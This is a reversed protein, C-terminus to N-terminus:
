FVNMEIIKRLELLIRKRHNSITRHTTGILKAYQRLSMDEFYLADILNRDLEDLEDLAKYLEDILQKLFLQDIINKQKYVLVEYLTFEEGFGNSRYADLSEVKYRRDREIQYKEQRRGAYWCIYIDRDVEIPENSDELLIFYVDREKPKKGPM